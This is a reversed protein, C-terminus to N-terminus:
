DCQFSSIVNLHFNNKDIQIFDYDIIFRDVEPYDSLKKDVLTQMISRMKKWQDSNQPIKMVNKLINDIEKLCINKDILSLNWAAIALFIIIKRDESTSAQKLLDDAYDLIIQSMKDVGLKESYAFVTKKDFNREKLEDESNQIMFSKKEEMSQNNLCCKKYKKGSGCFCRANRNQKILPGDNNKALTKEM